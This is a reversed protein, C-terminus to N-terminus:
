CGVFECEAGEYASRKAKAVWGGAAMIRVAEAPKDPKHDLTIAHVSYAAGGDAGRVGVVARSDGVWAAVM